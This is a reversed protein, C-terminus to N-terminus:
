TGDTTWEMEDLQGKCRFMDANKNTRCGGIEGVCVATKSSLFGTSM